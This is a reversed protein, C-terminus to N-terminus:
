RQWFTRSFLVMVTFIELRGLLMCFSAIWKAVNPLHSWNEAPGVSGLAPGINGISSASASLATEIDMGLMAFAMSTFVFIFIYFLYFGVTKKVVDDPVVNGNIRLPFVGKPHLMKRIESILYKGILITRIIKMAGTTSGACGGVFFLFFMLTKSFAPWNGYNETTFGTTTIITVSAFISHRISDLNFEYLRSNVINLLFLLSFVVIMGLYVKFETDKLYEVRRNSIYMYHLTFSTGAFIMFFIITWQILPSFAGISANKTSFGATSITTFAHCLASHIDMGELFLIFALILVFGVYISWLLKATQKVRPTMKDAIPGAVEARFLQAGGMGLLPLIAISFVIIGMGGIFQTFSRWFLIGHPLSEIDTTSPGGLITAGTTTLGSMSEFFANTFSFNSGYFYFPLASYFAIFIWGITVIAFGDRNSIESKSNSRSILIFVIGSLFTILISYIFANLDNEQNLYFDYYFSWLSSLSMALSLFVLIIGIIYFIQKRLM